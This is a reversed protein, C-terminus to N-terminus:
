SLNEIFVRGRDGYLFAPDRKGYIYHVGAVALGIGSRGLAAYARHDCIDDCLFAYLISRRDSLSIVATSCFFRHDRRHFLFVVEKGVVKDRGRLAWM